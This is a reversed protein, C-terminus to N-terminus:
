SRRGRSSGRLRRYGEPPSGHAHPAKMGSLFAQKRRVARDIDTEPVEKEKTLAHALVTAERGHFFYLIRYNVHGKRARLEHIGDRLVDSEPRRLECGLEELRMMRAVCKAYAKPDRARLGELWALVPVDGPKEQYFVVQAQPM